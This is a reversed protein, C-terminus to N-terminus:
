IMLVHLSFLDIKISDRMLKNTHLLKIAICKLTMVVQM